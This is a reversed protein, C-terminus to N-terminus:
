GQKLLAIAEIEVMATEEFLSAVEVLTMAPFHKGLLDSWAVAIEAQATKFSSLSTVLVRLSAIDPAGGGAARVVDVVNSLSRRFQDQFSMGPEPAAAGNIVALQGAVYLPARGPGYVGYSFGKARRWGEPLVTKLETSTM